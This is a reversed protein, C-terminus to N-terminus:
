FPDSLGDINLKQKKRGTTLSLKLGVMRTPGLNGLMETYYYDLINNAFLTTELDFTEGFKFDYIFRMNLIHTPVKSDDIISGIENDIELFGSKYKYDSQFKLDGLNVSVSNQFLHHSRYKLYTNETIDKPDIYTFSFTLDVIDWFNSILGFEFGRIRAETINNFQIVLGGNTRFQPEILDKMNNEFVAADLAFRIKNIAFFFNLGTEYSVSTEATLNPNPIVDYGSYAISTFKEAISPARFGKGVSGRLKLNELISYNLGLKPSFQLDAEVNSTIEKDLRLGATLILDDIMTNELQFYGSYMQQDENGYNKSDVFHMSTNIGFTIVMEEFTSTNQVDTNWSYARSQRYEESDKDYSNYFNTVFLNTKAHFYNFENFFTSYGANLTYKNSIMRINTDVDDPPFTAKDLSHWYVRDAHDNFVAILSLDIDSEDDFKHYARLYGAINESDDFKQFSEDDIFSISAIQIDNEDSEQISLKYVDQQHLEDSYVWQEYRPKTYIGKSYSLTIIEGADTPQKTILNVVGGIASTGYLASGAGKVIEIREIAEPPIFDFKIDGNDGSLMPMGDLLLSVRSGIGYSFGNSGRINVNDKTVDVGSAFILAEKLDLPNLTHLKEKDLVTISIPVDQVAQIRKNATVVVSHAQINIPMLEFLVDAVSNTAFTQNVYGVYSVKIPTGKPVNQEILFHGQNDTFTGIKWNEIVVSAGILAEGTESDVVRGKLSSLSASTLSLLLLVCLIIKYKM